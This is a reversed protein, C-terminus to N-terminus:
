YIKFIVEWGRNVAIGKLRLLGNGDVTASVFQRNLAIIGIKGQGPERCLQLQTQGSGVPQRLRCTGSFRNGRGNIDPNRSRLAIDKRLFARNGARIVLHILAIIILIQQQIKGTGQNEQKQKLPIQLVLFVANLSAYLHYMEFNM